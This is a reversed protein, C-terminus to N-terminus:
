FPLNDRFEEITDSDSTGQIEVVPIDRGQWERYSLKAVVGPREKTVEDFMEEIEEETVENGVDYGLKAMEQRFIQLGFENAEGEKDVLNYWFTITPAELETDCIMFKARAKQGKGDVYPQLVVEKVLMEYKGTKIIAAGSAPVNSFARELPSKKSATAKQRNIPALKKKKLRPAEEEEEEEEEEVVKRVLKKKAVPATETEEEEEEVENTEEDTEEDEINTAEEDELEEERRKNPMPRALPKNASKGSIPALKKKLM